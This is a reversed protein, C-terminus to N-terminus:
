AKAFERRLVAVAARVVKQADEETDLGLEAAIEEAAAGHVWLVLARHRDPPLRTEAFEFLERATQANTIPPRHSLGSLQPAMAFENLLRSVGPSDYAAADAAVVRVHDRIVNTTVIRIWDAFTKDAHAAHWSAYSMLARGENAELKAFVKTMVNRVEDENSALPGMARSAGVIKILPPWLHEVLRQWARADGSSWRAILSECLLLDIGVYSGRRGM